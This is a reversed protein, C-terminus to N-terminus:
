PTSVELQQMHAVAQDILRQPVDPAKPVFWEPDWGTPTWRAVLSLMVRGNGEKRFRVISDQYQEVTWQRKLHPEWPVHKSYQAIQAM